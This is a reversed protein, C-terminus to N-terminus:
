NHTVDQFSVVFGLFVRGYRNQNEGTRFIFSYKRTIGKRQLATKPVQPRLIPQIAQGDKKKSVQHETDLRSPSVCLEKQPIEGLGM